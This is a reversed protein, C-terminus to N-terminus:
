KDNKVWKMENESWKIELREAITPIQELVEKETDGYGVLHGSNARDFRRLNFIMNNIKIESDSDTSIFQMQNPNWFLLWCKTISNQKM